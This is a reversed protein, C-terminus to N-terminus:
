VHPSIERSSFWRGGLIVLLVVWVLRLGLDEAVLQIDHSTGLAAKYILNENFHSMPLVAVLASAGYQVWEPVTGEFAWSDMVLWAVPAIVVIAPHFRSALAASATLWILHGLIIAVFAPIALLGLSVNYKALKTLCFLIAALDVVIIVSAAPVWAATFFKARSVPRALYSFIVGRRIDASFMTAGLVVGIMASMFGTASLVNRCWMRAYFANHSSDPDPEWAFRVGSVMLPVVLAYVVAAVLLGRNSRLRLLNRKVLTGFAEPNM